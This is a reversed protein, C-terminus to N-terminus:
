RHKAAALAIDRFHAFRPADYPFVSYREIATESFHDRIQRRSARANGVLARGALIISERFYSRDGIVKGGMIQWREINVILQAIREIEFERFCMLLGCENTALRAMLRRVDRPMEHPRTKSVVAASTAQEVLRERLSDHREVTALASREWEHSAVSLSRAGTLANQADLREFMLRSVDIALQEAEFREPLVDLSPDAAFEKKHVEIARNLYSEAIELQDPVDVSHRRCSAALFNAERGNARSGNANIQLNSFSLARDALDAAIQWESRAAFLAAHVLYYIYKRDAEQPWEREISRVGQDYVAADLDSRVHWRSMTDLFKQTDDGHDLRLPPVSRSPQALADNGSYLFLVGSATAIKFCAEWCRDAIQNLKSDLSARLAIWDHLVAKAGADGAIEDFIQAVIKKPSEYTDRIQNAYAKWDQAFRRPLEPKKEVSSLAARKSSDSLPGLLQAGHGSDIGVEASALFTQLWTGFDSTKSDRDLSADSDERRLLNISALFHRPHRIFRSAFNSTEFRRSSAAELIHRAGTIYLIRWNKPALRTNWTELRALADADRDLAARKKHDLSKENGSTLARFWELKRSTHEILDGLKSMPLMELGFEHGEGFYSAFWEPSNIRELELLRSLRLYENQPSDSQAYILRLIRQQIEKPVEKSKAIESIASRVTEKDFWKQPPESGLQQSIAHLMSVVETEIPPILLLPINPNIEFFIHDVLREAIAANTESDDTSFIQGYGIRAEREDAHSSPNGYTAVIDADVAYVTNGGNSDFQLDASWNQMLRCQILAGELQALYSRIDTNPPKM